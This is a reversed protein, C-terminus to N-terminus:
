NQKSQKKRNWGIMEVDINESLNLSLTRTKVLSILHYIIYFFYQQCSNETGDKKWLSM